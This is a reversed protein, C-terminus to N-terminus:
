PFARCVFLSDQIRESRGDPGSLLSTASTSINAWLLNGKATTDARCNTQNIEGRKIDGDCTCGWGVSILGVQAGWGEGGGCWM